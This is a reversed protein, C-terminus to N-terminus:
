EGDKVDKGKALTKAFFSADALDLEDPHSLAEDFNEIMKEIADMNEDNRLSDYRERIEDQMRGQCLFFGLYENDDEVWARVNQEIEKKYSETPEAGCTAFLAISVEHLDALSDIVDMGCTMRHVPFGIFYTEADMLFGSEGIDVIEKEEASVPLADFIRGAIAKTNGTKSSFAVVYKLM